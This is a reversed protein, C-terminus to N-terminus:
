QGHPSQASSGMNRLQTQFEAQAPSSVVPELIHNVEQSIPSVPYLTMPSEIDRANRALTEQLISSTESRNSQLRRQIIRPVLKHWMYDRFVKTTGFVVFSLLSASVGPMFIIFDSRAREASLDAM